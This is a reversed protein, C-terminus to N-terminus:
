HPSETNVTYNPNFPTEGTHIRQHCKLNSSWNFSKGCQSCSFPRVGTHIRQHKKLNNLHSFSKGCQSCSFPREGTHIPEHYKLASIQRFSKGCQSCSFPREGTHIRQHIKLECPHSFSKECESCSFPREGTHIYQHKKLISFRSFSKGCQSCTFPREGTHIRQHKKLYSLWNFSKGCQNCSFPKEGTHIRQHTKLQSSQSFSKGCHSCTFPREGTHIRQHKKLNNLHSFSKGCQNCNFPRDGTHVRQHDKLASLRSFNKGCQSCNFPREGTHVRLHKKLYNLLNFSKGCESCSFPKEETNVHERVTLVSSQNFNKECQSYSHLTEGKQTHQHATFSLSHIDSQGFQTHFDGSHDGSFKTTNENLSLPSIRTPHGSDQQRHELPLREVRVSCPRLIILEQHTRQCRQQEDKRMDEKYEAQLTHHSEAVEQENHATDSETEEKVYVCDFEDAESKVCLSDVSPEHLDCAGEEKVNICNPEPLQEEPHFLPSEINHEIIDVDDLENLEEKKLGQAIVSEPEDLDETINYNELNNFRETNQHWERSKVSICGPGPETTPVSELGNLKKVSQLSRRESPKEECAPASLKMEQRVSSSWKEESHQLKKRRKLTCFVAGNEVAGAEAGGPDGGTIEPCVPAGLGGCSEKERSRLRLRLTETEQKVRGIESQLRAVRDQVLETIQFVSSKVLIDTLSHLRDELEFDSRKNQLLDSVEGVATRIVGEMVATLQTQFDALHELM